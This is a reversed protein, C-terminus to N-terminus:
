GGNRQAEVYERAEEETHFACYQTSNKYVIWRRSATPDSTYSYSWNDRAM